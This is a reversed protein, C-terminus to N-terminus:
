ETQHVVTLKQLYIFTFSRILYVFRKIITKAWKLGMANTIIHKKGLAVDLNRAESM